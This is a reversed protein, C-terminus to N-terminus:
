KWVFTVQTVLVASRQVVQHLNYSSAKHGKDTMASREAKSDSPSGKIAMSLDESVGQLGKSAGSSGILAGM